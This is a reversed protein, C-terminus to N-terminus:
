ESVIPLAEERLLDRRFRVVSRYIEQAYLKEQDDRWTGPPGDFDLEPPKQDKIILWQAVGIIEGTSEDTVKVWQVTPDFAKHAIFGAAHISQAEASLNRPWCADVFGNPHIAQFMFPVFEHFDADDTVLSLQLPMASKSDHRQTQTLLGRAGM